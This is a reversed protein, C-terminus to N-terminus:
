KLGDSIAKAIERKMKKVSKQAAQLEEEKQRLERLLDAYETAQVWENVQRLQDVQAPNHLM